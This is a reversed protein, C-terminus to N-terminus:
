MRVQAVGVLWLVERLFLLRLEDGQAETDSRSSLLEEYARLAPLYAGRSASVQLCRLSLVTLVALLADALM